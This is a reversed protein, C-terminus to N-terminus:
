DQTGQEYNATDRILLSVITQLSLHNRTQSFVCCYPQNSLRYLNKESLAKNGSFLRWPIVSVRFLPKAECFLKVASVRLVSPMDQREGRKQPKNM